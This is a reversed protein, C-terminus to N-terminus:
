SSSGWVQKKLLPRTYPFDNEYASGSFQRMDFINFKLTNSNLWGHRAVQLPLTMARMSKETKSNGKFHSRDRYDRVQFSIRM